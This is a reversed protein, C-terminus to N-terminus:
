NVSNLNPKLRSPIPPKFYDSRERGERIIDIIENNTIDTEILRIDWTITISM